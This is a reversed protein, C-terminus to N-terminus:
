STFGGDGIPVPISIPDDKPIESVVTMLGVVKATNFPLKQEFTTHQGQRNVEFTIPVFRRRVVKKTEKGDTAIFKLLCKM